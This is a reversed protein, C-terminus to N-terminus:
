LTSTYKVEYSEVSAAWGYDYLYLLSLMGYFEIPPILYCGGEGLAHFLRQHYQIESM